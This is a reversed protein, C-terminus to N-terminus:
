VEDDVWIVGKSALVNGSLGGSPTGLVTGLVEGRQEKTENELTQTVCKILQDTDELFNVIQMIDRM